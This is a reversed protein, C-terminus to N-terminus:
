KQQPDGKIISFAAGAPDKLIAIRGVGAANWPEM